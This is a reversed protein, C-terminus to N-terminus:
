ACGSRTARGTGSRRCSRSRAAGARADAPRLHLPLADDARVALARARARDLRADRWPGILDEGHDPRFARPHLRGRDLRRRGQGPGRRDLPARSPRRGLRALGDQGEDDPRGADAHRGGAASRRWRARTTTPSPSPRRARSAGPSTRGPAARRGPARRLRAAPLVEETKTDTIWAIDGVAFVEPHGALSLDPESLSGIAASCSSGSRSARAPEGAPGRGLRAHASQAGRGVQADRADPTVSAVIEGLQVEVGRKELAGQTYDRIDPKFM